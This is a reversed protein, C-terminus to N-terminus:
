SVKCTCEYKKQYWATETKMGKRKNIRMQKRHLRRATRAGECMGNCSRPRRWGKEYDKMEIITPTHDKQGTVKQGVFACCCLCCRQFTGCVLSYFVPCWKDCLTKQFKYVTNLGMKAPNTLAPYDIQGTLLMHVVKLLGLCMLLHFFWGILVFKGINGAMFKHIKNFLRFKKGLMKHLDKFHDDKHYTPPPPCTSSGNGCQTCHLLTCNCNLLMINYWLYISLNYSVACGCHGYCFCTDETEFYVTM